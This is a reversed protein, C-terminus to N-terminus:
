SMSEREASEPPQHKPRTNRAFFLLLMGLVVAIDAVNFIPWGQVHIFDVVAGRFIRDVVNGLGGALAIALGVQALRSGKTVGSRFLMVGAAVIALCAVLALLAPSHPIHLRDLVGFAVDTNETYRLEVVKLPPGGELNAKAAMKTAHDCGFVGVVLSLLLTLRLWPRDLM